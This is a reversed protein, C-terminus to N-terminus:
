EDPLPIVDLLGAALRQALSEPLVRHHALDAPAVWALERLVPTEAAAREPDAGLAAAGGAPRALFILECADAAVFDQACAIGTLEVDLGVEERLERRAAQAFSEGPEVGGGPFCWFDRGDPHTHRVLLVRGGDLVVARARCVPRRRPPTEQMRGNYWARRPTGRV